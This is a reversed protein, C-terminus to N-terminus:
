RAQAPAAVKGIKSAQAYDESTVFTKQSHYMGNGYDYANYDSVHIVKSQEDLTYPEYEGWLNGTYQGAARSRVEAVMYNRADRIRGQVARRFYLSMCTLTAVVLILSMAFESSIIQGQKSLVSGM